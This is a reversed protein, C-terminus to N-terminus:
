EAGAFNELRGCCFFQLGDVSHIVNNERTKRSIGVSFDRFIKHDYILERVMDLLLYGVKEM